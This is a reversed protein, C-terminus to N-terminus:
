TYYMHFKDNRKQCCRNRREKGREKEKKTPKRRKKIPHSQLASSGFPQNQDKVRAWKGPRPIM